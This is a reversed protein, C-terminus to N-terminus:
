ALQDGNPPRTAMYNTLQQEGLALMQQMNAPDFDLGGPGANLAQVPQIVYIKVPQRGKFRNPDPTNFYNDIQDQSLGAALMRQQVDAIYRLGENYLMPIQINDFGVGSTFIDITQELITFADNYVQQAPPQQQPSLVIAYIEDAGAEIALQIGVYEKVGGDVYQRTPNAGPQVEIPQMFVPQCASALVAHRLEDPSTLQNIILDTGAPPPQTSWNVSQETQLCTTTLFVPAPLQLIQQCLADTLNTQILNALPTADYLSPATLLRTVVNGMTIIQATTVTTYINELLALQGAAVLPVILSGTSTGIYMDFSIKPFSAALQKLVGVAFAGKSGGGSVVLATKSM